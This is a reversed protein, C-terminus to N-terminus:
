KKAYSKRPMAKRQMAIEKCLKKNAYSKIQMAKKNAYSERLM